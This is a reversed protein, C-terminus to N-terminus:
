GLYLQKVHSAERLISFYDDPLNAREFEPLAFYIRNDIVVRSSGVIVSLAEDLTINKNYAIDPVAVDGNIVPLRIIQNILTSPYAPM